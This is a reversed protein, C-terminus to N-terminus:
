LTHLSTFNGMETVIFFDGDYFLANKEDHMIIKVGLGQWKLGLFVIEADGEYSKKWYLRKPYMKVFNLHLFEKWSRFESLDFREGIFTHLKRELSSDNVEYTVHRNAKPTNQGNEVELIVKFFPLVAIFGKEQTAKEKYNVYIQIQDQLYFACLGVMNEEEIRGCFIRSDPFIAFAAGHIRGDRWEALCFLQDVDYAIGVGHPRDNQM